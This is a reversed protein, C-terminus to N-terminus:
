EPFALAEIFRGQFEPHAALDVTRVRAALDRVEQRAGTNVLAMRAGALATNGGFTVREHWGAPILGLRALSAARVHYGFGGAVIATAVDDPSLGADALLLDIGTRVAAVALQVQRVDKQTLVIEGAPDVALARVGGRETLRKGLPGGASTVFAGGVDLVGADLLVAV